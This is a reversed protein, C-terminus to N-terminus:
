TVGDGNLDTPCTNVGEYVLTVTNAAYVVAFGPEGTVADFTGAVGGNAVIIEFSDGINPQFGDLLQVHLEGELTAVETINLRDRDAPASGAIEFDVRGTAQQTYGAGIFLLGAE